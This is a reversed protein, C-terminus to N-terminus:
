QTDGQLYDRAAEALRRDLTFLPAALEGALWQYSANNSSPLFREALRLVPALPVILLDIAIEEFRSLGQLATDLDCEQRRIKNM